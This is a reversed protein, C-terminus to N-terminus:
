RRTTYGMSARIENLAYAALLPTLRELRNDFKDRNQNPASAILDKTNKNMSEIM